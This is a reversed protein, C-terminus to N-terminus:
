AKFGQACKIWAPVSDDIDSNLNYTIAPKNEETEKEKGLSFDVKNRVAIVSLKEEIQELSYENKHAIVEAKEEDTLFYFSAILEDKEKNEAQNKFNVLEKYKEELAAYESRLTELEKELLQYKKKDEEDDDKKTDDSSGEKNETDDSKNDDDKKKEEDEDKKFEGEPASEPNTAPEQASESNEVNTFETSNEVNTEETSVPTEASFEKKPEDVQNKMIEQGGESLAKKLEGMMSYLQVAFDEMRSYSKTVSSGEFCPEVNDGLVCLKSIIADSIIFLDIGNEKTFWEGQVDDGLEMSQGKGGDDLIQQAEKFQGTWLYGETVLYERTVKEGLPTTEEFKQFWVKADTPIFGYPTTLNEFKVGDDDIVVRHGHDSFDEKSENYYGVIPCGPLSKAMETAVEKNIFTRNRNEGIYFVKIECKSILPSKDLPQLNIFEPNDITEISQHRLM